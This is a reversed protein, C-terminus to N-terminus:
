AAAPWSSAARATRSRRDPSLAQLGFPTYRTNNMGLPELLETRILEEFPRRAAVEAVRAAVNFGMTCYHFEAGPETALGARRGARAGFRGALPEPECFFRAGSNGKEDREATTM